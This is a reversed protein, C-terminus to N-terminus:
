DTRRSRTGPSRPDTDGGRFEFHRQDLTRQYISLSRATRARLVILEAFERAPVWEDSALEPYLKAYRPRVRVERESVRRERDTRAVGPCV